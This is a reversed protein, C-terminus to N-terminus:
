SIGNIIQLSQYYYYNPFIMQTIQWAFRVKLLSCHRTSTVSDCDGWEFTTIESTLHIKRM